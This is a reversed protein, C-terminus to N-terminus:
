IGRAHVAFLEALRRTVPGPAGLDRGDLERVGLIELSTSTFFLEDALALEEERVNRERVMVHAREALQIVHARTIGPLIRNDAMPTVVEGNFVLFLNSASGETVWGDRVLVAEFAGREHATQKALVNPLLSITKLDCRAWREDALTIAKCGHEWLAPNASRPPRVWIVLSGPVDPFLHNRRAVGRTAQIYVEADGLGTREMLDVVVEGIEPPTLPLALRIGAASRALRELHDHTAFMRGGYARLVEYVGDAFLFGRDELAVTAGAIPRIEGDVWVLGEAALPTNPALARETV